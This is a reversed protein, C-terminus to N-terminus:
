SRADIRREASGDGALPEVVKRQFWGELHDLVTLAMEHKGGPFYHYLSSRGLGTARAISSMSAGDFGERRFVEFLTQTIRPPIASAM